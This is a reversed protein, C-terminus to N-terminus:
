NVVFLLAYFLLVDKYLLKKQLGATYRPKRDRKNNFFFRQYKKIYILEIWKYLEYSAIFIEYSRAPRFLIYM